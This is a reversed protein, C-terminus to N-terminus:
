AWGFKAACIPGIGRATSAPDTLKLSCIACRGTLKGHAIAAGLPDQAIKLVEAMADQTCQALFKGSMIKGLYQGDPQDPTGRKKVYIGGVNPNPKGYRDTKPVPSFRYEGVNLGPKKLRESARAFAKELPETNVVPASEADPKVRTACKDAALVQRMTLYGKKVFQDRLSRAFDFSAANDDMWALVRVPIDERYCVESM